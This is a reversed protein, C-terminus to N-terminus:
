VDELFGYLTEMQFVIDPLITCDYNRLHSMVGTTIFHARNIRYV